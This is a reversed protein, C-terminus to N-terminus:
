KRFGVWDKLTMLFPDLTTLVFKLIGGVRGALHSGEGVEGLTQYKHTLERLQILAGTARGWNAHDKGVAKLKQKTGLTRFIRPTYIGVGLKAASVHGV